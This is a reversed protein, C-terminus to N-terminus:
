SGDVFRATDGSRVRGGHEVLAYVGAAPLVGFGPVDIRNAAMLVQLAQPDRPLAGHALVPVACRPTPLVCRLVVQEGVALRRGVWDNEAFPASGRPSGLVLNPRYRTAQVGVRDLTATSLVHVPAYDLFTPGPVLEGLVLEPASVEAEEGRALVEDPDARDLAAGPAPQESLTVERGLLQSLAAHVEPDRASVPGRGPLHLQVDTGDDTATATLLGRWWRPQKASAVTGTAADIVAFRRDGQVGREDLVLTAPQEGLMSKVPYRWTQRVVM